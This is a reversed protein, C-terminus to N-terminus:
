MISPAQRFGGMQGATAPNDEDRTMAAYKYTRKM